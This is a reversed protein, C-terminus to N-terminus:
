SNQDGRLLDHLIKLSQSLWLVEQDSIVERSKTKLTSQLREAVLRMCHEVQGPFRERFQVSHHNEITTNVMSTLTDDLNAQVNPIM